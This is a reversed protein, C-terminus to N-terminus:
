CTFPLWSRTPIAHFYLSVQRYIQHNDHFPQPTREVSFCQIYLSLSKSTSSVIENKFSVVQKFDKEKLIANDLSSDRVWKVKANVFTRVLTWNKLLSELAAFLSSINEKNRPSLSYLPLSRSPILLSCLLPPSLRMIGSPLLDAILDCTAAEIAVAVTSLSSMAAAGPFLNSDNQVFFILSKSSQGAEMVREGAGNGPKLKKGFWICEWLGRRRESDRKSEGSLCFSM